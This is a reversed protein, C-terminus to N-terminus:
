PANAPDGCVSLSASRRNTAAQAASQASRARCRNSASAGSSSRGRARIARARAYASPSNLVASPIRRLNAPPTPAPSTLLGAAAAAARAAPCAAATQWMPACASPDAAYATLATLAAAGFRGSAASSSIRQCSSWMDLPARAASRVRGGSPSFADPGSPGPSRAEPWSPMVM